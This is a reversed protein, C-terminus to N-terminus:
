EIEIGGGSPAGILVWSYADEGDKMCIVLEDKYGASAEEFRISGRLMAGCIPRVGTSSISLSGSINVATNSTNGLQVTNSGRGIANHGIVIENTNGNASARTGNGIYISQTSTQNATGASIYRGAEKGIAVQDAGSTNERLAQYGIGVNRAGGNTLISEYGIAVTESFNGNQAAKWGLAVNGVGTSLSQLAGFGVATNGTSSSGTLASSGIAVSEAGGRANHGISILNSYGSYGAGVGIAVQRITTTAGYMADKGIAVNEGGSTISRMANSGVATNSSGTGTASYLSRYGVAVSEARTARMAEIGGITYTSAASFNASGTGVEPTAWVLGTSTSSDSTLVQGDTGVVALRLLGTGDHTLIDGKATLTDLTGGGGGGAGSGVEAVVGLPDMTKLKSDEIDVFLTLGYDPPTPEGVPELNLSQALVGGNYRVEFTKVYGGLRPSFAVFHPSTNNIGSGMGAGTTIGAYSAFSPQTHEVQDNFVRVGSVGIPAVAVDVVSPGLEGSGGSGFYAYKSYIGVSDISPADIGSVSLGSVDIWGSQDIGWQGDVTLGSLFDATGEFSSGSSVTFAGEVGLTSSFTSPTLVKFGGDPLIEMVDQWTSGTNFIRFTVSDATGGNNRIKFDTVAYASAGLALLLTVISLTKKM